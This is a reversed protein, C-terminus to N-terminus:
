YNCSGGNVSFCDGGWPSCETGSMTCAASYCATIPVGNCGGLSVRRNQDPAMTASASYPGGWISLFSIVLGVVLIVKVVKLTKLADM